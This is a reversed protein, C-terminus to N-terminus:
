PCSDSTNSKLWLNMKCHAVNMFDPLETTEKCLTRDEVCMIASCGDCQLFSSHGPDIAGWRRGGRISLNELKETPTPFHGGKFKAGCM